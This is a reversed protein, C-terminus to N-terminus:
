ILAYAAVCAAVLAVAVSGHRRSEASSPADNGPAVDRASICSLQVTPSADDPAGARVNWGWVTLVPWIRGAADRWAGEDGPDHPESATVFVERGSVSDLPLQQVNFNGTDIADGCSSPTPPPTGYCDQNRPFKAAYAQELDSVCQPTMVSCTSGDGAATVNEQPANPIVVICIKWTSEDVASENTFATRLSGPAELFISTGTYAKGTANSPNMTDSDPINRTVNISLHWGDVKMSPWRQSIDFGVVSNNGTANPHALNAEWSDRDFQVANGAVITGGMPWGPLAYVGPLLPLLFISRRMAINVM